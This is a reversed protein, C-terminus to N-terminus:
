LTKKAFYPKPPFLPARRHDGLRTATQLAPPVRRTEWKLDQVDSANFFIPHFL